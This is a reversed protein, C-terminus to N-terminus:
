CKWSLQFWVWKSRDITLNLRVDAEELRYRDVLICQVVLFHLDGPLVTPRHCHVIMKMKENTQVLRTMWCVVAKNHNNMDQIKLQFQRDTYQISDHLQKLQVHTDIDVYPLGGEFQFDLYLYPFETKRSYERLSTLLCQSRESYITKIGLNLFSKNPM